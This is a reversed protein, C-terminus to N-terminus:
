TLVCVFRMGKKLFCGPYKDKVVSELSAETSLSSVNTLCFLGLSSATAASLLNCAIGDFVYFTANVTKSDVSVNLNFQGLMRLPACQGYAFLKKTTPQLVVSNRLIDYTQRDLVNDVAGSDVLFTVSIGAMSATCTPTGKGLTLRHGVTFEHSFNDVASPSGTMTTIGDPTAANDDAIANVTTSKKNKAKRCFRSGAFHGEKCHNCIKSRAPCSTDSAVHGPKSCRFCTVTKSTKQGKRTNSASFTNYNSIAGGKHAVRAVVNPTTAAIARSDGDLLQVTGAVEMAGALTTIRTDETHKKSLGSHNVGSIFQELLNEDLRDGFNCYRAGKRVRIQFDTFSEGNQRIISRFRTHELRMNRPEGFHSQLSLKLDDYGVSQPVAPSVLDRLTQYRGASLGMLLIPVKKANETSSVAFYCELRELFSDVETGDDFTPIPLGAM